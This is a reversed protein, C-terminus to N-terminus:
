IPQEAQSKDQMLLPPTSLSTPIKLIPKKALPEHTALWVQGSTNLFPDSCDVVGERYAMSTENLIQEVGM